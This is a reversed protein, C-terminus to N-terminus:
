YKTHQVSIVIEVIRLRADGMGDTKVQWATGARKREEGTEGEMEKTELQTALM